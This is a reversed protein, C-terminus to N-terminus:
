GCGPWGPVDPMKSVEPAVTALDAQSVGAKTAANVARKYDLRAAKDDSRIAKLAGLASDLHAVRDTVNFQAERIEEDYRVADAAKQVREVLETTDTKVFAVAADYAANTEDTLALGQARLADIREIEALAAERESVRPTRTGTTTLVGHAEATSM